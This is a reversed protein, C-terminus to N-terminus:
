RDKRYIQGSAPPSVMLRNDFGGRRLKFYTSNASGDMALAESGKGVVSWEGGYGVQSYSDLDTIVVTDNIMFDVPEDTQVVIDTKIFHNRIALINYGFDSIKCTELVRIPFQMDNINYHRYDNCPNSIDAIHWTYPLNSYDGIWTWDTGTNKTWVSTDIIHIKEGTCFHMAAEGSAIGITPDNEDVNKKVVYHARIGNGALKVEGFMNGGGTNFAPTDIASLDYDYTIGDFCYVIESHGQYTVLAAASTYVDAPTGNEKQIHNNYVLTKLVSSNPLGAAYEYVFNLKYVNMCISIEGSTTDQTVYAVSPMSINYFLNTNEAVGLLETFHPTDQLLTLGAHSLYAKLWSQKAEDTWDMVFVNQITLPSSFTDFTVVDDEIYIIDAPSAISGSIPNLTIETTDETYSGSWTGTSTFRFYKM